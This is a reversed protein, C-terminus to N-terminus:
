CHSIAETGGSVTVSGPFLSTVSLRAVDLLVLLGVLHRVLAARPECLQYSYLTSM